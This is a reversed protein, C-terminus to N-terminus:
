DVNKYVVTQVGTSSMAPADTCLQTSGDPATYYPNVTEKYPTELFLCMDHVNSTATCTASTGNHSMLDEFMQSREAKNAISHLFPAMFPKAEQELGFKLMTGYDHEGCTNVFIATGTFNEYYTKEVVGSYTEIMCDGPNMIFATNPCGTDCTVPPQDPRSPPTPFTLSPCIGDVLPPNNGTSYACGYNSLWNSNQVKTWECFNGVIIEMPVSAIRQMLDGPFYEKCYTALDGDCGSGSCAYQCGPVNMDSVIGPHWLVMADLKVGKMLLQNATAPVTSAGGSHGGITVVSFNGIGIAWLAACVPKMTSEQSSPGNSLQPCVVYFGLHKAIHHLTPAYQMCLSNTGPAFVYLKDSKNSGWTFLAVNPFDYEYMVTWYAAQVGVLLAPSWSVDVTAEYLNEGGFTIVGELLKIYAPDNKIVHHFCDKDKCDLEDAAGASQVKAESKKVVAKKQLLAMSCEASDGLCVDDQALAEEVEVCDGLYSIISVIILFSAKM